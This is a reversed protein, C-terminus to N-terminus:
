REAFYRLAAVIREEITSGGDPPLSRVAAQAEAPSYGLNVLGSYVEADGVFGDAERPSLATTDIKGKLELIIRGATKAGVGPIRRLMEANGTAIAMRLSDTSSASLVALAVKPGVGSVGILLEFTSLEEETSFGFLSLNDERIHLHTHLTIRDGSSGLTALTSTPVFVKFGVGGVEVIVYEATTRLLTGRLSSIM